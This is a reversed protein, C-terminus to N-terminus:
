VTNSPVYFVACDLGICGFQVVRVHQWRTTCQQQCTDLHGVFLNLLNKIKTHEYTTRQGCALPKVKDPHM